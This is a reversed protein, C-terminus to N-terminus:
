QEDKMTTPQKTEAGFDKQPGELHSSGDDLGQM